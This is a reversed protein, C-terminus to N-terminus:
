LSVGRAEIRAARIAEVIPKVRETVEPQRHLWSRHLPVLSPDMPNKGLDVLDSAAALPDNAFLIRAAVRLFAAQVMKPPSDIDSRNMNRGYKVWYRRSFVSLADRVVADAGDLHDPTALYVAMVGLAVLDQFDARAQNMELEGAAQLHGDLLRQLRLLEVDRIRTARVHRFETSCRQVSGSRDRLYGGCTGRVVAAEDVRYRCTPCATVLYCDHELCAYAWPLSWRLLWRGDSDDFCGPCLSLSAPNVWNEKLMRQKRSPDSHGFEVPLATGTFRTWTMDRAAAASLGTAANIREVSEDDLGFIASRQNTLSVGSVVRRDAVHWVGSVYAAEGRNVGLLRGMCGLWSLM